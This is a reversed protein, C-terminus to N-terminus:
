FANQAKGEFSQHKPNPRVNEFSWDHFSYFAYYFLLFLVNQHKAWTWRGCAQFVVAGEDCGVLVM